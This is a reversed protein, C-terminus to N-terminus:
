GDSSMRALVAGRNLVSEIVLEYEFYVSYDDYVWRTIPPDGVPAHREAPDGYRELVADKTMGNAPLNREMRERVEEILLVDAPVPGAGVLCLATACAIVVSRFM